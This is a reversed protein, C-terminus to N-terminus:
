ELYGELIQTIRDKQDQPLPSNALEALKSRTYSKPAKEQKCEDYDIVFVYAGPGVTPNVVLGEDQEVIAWPPEGSGYVLWNMIRVKDDMTIEAHTDILLEAVGRVYEYNDSDRCLDRARQFAATKVPMDTPKTM